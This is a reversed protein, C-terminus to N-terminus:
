FLRAISIGIFFGPDDIRYAVDARFLNFINSLSVGAEMHLNETEQPSFGYRNQFQNIQEQQLWTKGIGGFM